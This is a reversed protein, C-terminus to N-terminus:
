SFSLPPATSDFGLPTLAMDCQCHIVREIHQPKPAETYDFREAVVIQQQSEKRTQIGLYENVEVVPTHNQNHNIEGAQDCVKCEALEDLNHHQIHNVRSQFSWLFLAILIINLSLKLRM